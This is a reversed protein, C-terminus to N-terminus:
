LSVIYRYQTNRIECLATNRIESNILMKSYISVYLILFKFLFRGSTAVMIFVKANFWNNVHGLNAYNCASFSTDNVNTTTGLDSSSTVITEFYTTSITDMESTGNSQDSSLHTSSLTVPAESSSTTKTVVSSTLASSSTEDTNYLSTTETTVAVGSSIQPDSSTTISVYSTSTSSPLTSQTTSSNLQIDSVFSVYVTTGNFILMLYYRTSKNVSCTILAFNLFFCVLISAVTLLKNNELYNLMLFYRTTKIVSCTILVFNLFFGLISTVTVM